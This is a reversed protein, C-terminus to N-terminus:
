QIKVKCIEDGCYCLLLADCTSRKFYVFLFILFLCFCGGGCDVMLLETWVEGSFM